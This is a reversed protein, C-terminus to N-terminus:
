SSVIGKQWVRPFLRAKKGGGSKNQKKISKKKLASKCERLVSCLTCLNGM